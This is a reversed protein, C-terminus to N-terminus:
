NKGKKGKNKDFTQRLQHEVHGGRQIRQTSVFFSFPFNAILAFATTCIREVCHLANSQYKVSTKLWVAFDINKIKLYNM